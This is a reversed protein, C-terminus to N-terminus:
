HKQCSQRPVLSGPPLQVFLRHFVHNHPSPLWASWTLLPLSWCSAGSVLIAPLNLTGCFFEGRQFSRRGSIYILCFQQLLSKHIWAWQWECRLAFNCLECRSSGATVQIHLLWEFLM